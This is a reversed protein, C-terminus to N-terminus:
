EVIYVVVSSFFIAAHGMKYFTNYIPSFYRYFCYLYFIRLYHIFFVKGRADPMQSAFLVFGLCFFTPLM